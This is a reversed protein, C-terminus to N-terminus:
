STYKEAGGVLEIGEGDVIIMGGDPITYVIEDKTKYKDIIENQEKNYHVVSTFNIFGLASLNQLKVDNLDGYPEWGASIINNSMLITGASIGGYAVAKNQVLDTVVDLFGVKRAMDLLYFTNGGGVWVIDADSLEKQILKKTKYKLTYWIPNFGIQSLDDMSKCTYFKSEDPDTATPIFYCKSYRPDKGFHKLFIERLNETICSSTLFLKM